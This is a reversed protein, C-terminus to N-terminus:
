LIEEFKNPVEIDVSEIYECLERFKDPNKNPYKLLEYVYPKSIGMKEAVDEATEDWKERAKRFAQINKHDSTLM